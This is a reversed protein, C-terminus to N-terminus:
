QVSRMGARVGYRDSLRHNGRKEIRRCSKQGAADPSESQQHRDAYVQESKLVVGAIGKEAAYKDSDPPIPLRRRKM